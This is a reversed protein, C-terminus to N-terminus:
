FKQRLRIPDCIVDDKSIAVRLDSANGLFYAARAFGSGTMVVSDASALGVLDVFVNIYDDCIDDRLDSDRGGKSHDTQVRTTTTTTVKALHMAKASVLAVQVHRARALRMFERKLSQADSALFVRQTGRTDALRACRLLAAAVHTANSLHQFRPNHMESVDEGTRAHVGVFGHRLFGHPLVGHLREVVADSPKFLALAFARLVHMGSLVDPHLDLFRGDHNFRRLLDGFTKVGSNVAVAVLPYQRLHSELDDKVMHFLSGDPLPALASSALNHWNLHPVDMLDNCRPLTWDIAAPRLAATLAFPSHRGQPLDIFLARKSGLALLFLVNIGRLRDGIGACGTHPACRWILVGVPTHCASDCLCLRAKAHWAAYERLSRPADDRLPTLPWDPSSSSSAACVSSNSASTTANSHAHARLLSVSHHSPPRSLAFHASQVCTTVLVAFFVAPLATFVAFRRTGSSSKDSTPGPPALIRHM